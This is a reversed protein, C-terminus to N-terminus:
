GGQRPTLIEVKDGPNLKTEARAREPVFTGNVATAVRVGGFGAEPLLESLTTSAVTMAAGNVTLSVALSAPHAVAATMHADEHTAPLQSYITGPSPNSGGVSRNEIAHEVL